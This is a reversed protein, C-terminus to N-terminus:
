GAGSGGNHHGPGTGSDGRPGARGDCAPGPGAGFGASTAARAEALLPNFIRAREDYWQQLGKSPPIIRVNKEATIGEVTKGYGTFWGAFVEPSVGAEPPAEANGKLEEAKSRLAAADAARGTILIDLIPPPDISSDVLGAAEAAAIAEAVAKRAAEIKAQVEPPIPKEATTAEAPEQAPVADAAPEVAPAPETAVPEAAPAAAPAQGEETKPEDQAWVRGSASLGILGALAMTVIRRELLM